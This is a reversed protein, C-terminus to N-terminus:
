AKMKMGARVNATRLKTLVSRRVRMEAHQDLTELVAVEQLKSRKQPREEGIDKPGDTSRLPLALQTEELDTNVENAGVTEDEDKVSENDFTLDDDKDARYGLVKMWDWIQWNESNGQYGDLKPTDDDDWEQVM